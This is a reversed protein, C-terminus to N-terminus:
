MLETVESPFKAAWFPMFNKSKYKQYVNNEDCQQYNAYEKTPYNVCKSDEGKDPNLKQTMRIMLRIDRPVSLDDIHIKPGFYSLMNNKLLRKHLMKNKEELTVTMGLHEIKNIYFIVESPTFNTFKFFDLFDIKTCTPFLFSDWSSNKTSAYKMEGYTSYVGLNPIVESWNLSLAAKVDLSFM